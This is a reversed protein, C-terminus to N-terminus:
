GSKPGVMGMVTVLTLNRFQFNSMSTEGKGAVFFGTVIIVSGLMILRIDSVLSTRAAYYKVNNCGISM